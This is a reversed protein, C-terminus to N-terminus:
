EYLPIERENQETDRIDKSYRREWLSIFSTKKGKNGKTYIVMPDKSELRHCLRQLGM